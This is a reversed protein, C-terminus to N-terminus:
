FNLPEVNRTKICIAVTHCAAWTTIILWGLITSESYWMVGHDIQVLFHIDTDLHRRYRWHGDQSRDGESKM